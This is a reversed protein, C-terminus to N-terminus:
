FFEDSFRTVACQNSDSVPVANTVEDRVPRVLPALMSAARPRLVLKRACCYSCCLSFSLSPYLSFFGSANTVFAAIFHACKRSLYNMEPIAAAVVVAATAAPPAVMQQPRTSSPQM